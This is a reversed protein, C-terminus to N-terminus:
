SQLGHWYCNVYVHFSATLDVFGNLFEDPKIVAM